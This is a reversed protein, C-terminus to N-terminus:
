KKKKKESAHMISRGMGNAIQAPNDKSSIERVRIM